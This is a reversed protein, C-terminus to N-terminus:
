GRVGDRAVGPKPYMREYWPALPPPAAMGAPMTANIKARPDPPSSSLPAAVAGRGPVLNGLAEIWPATPTPPLREVGMADAFVNHVWDPLTRTVPPPDPPRPRAVLGANLPAALPAYAPLPAAGALPFGADRALDESPVPAMGAM